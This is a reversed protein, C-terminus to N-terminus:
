WMRNKRDRDRTSFGGGGGREKVEFWEWRNSTCM